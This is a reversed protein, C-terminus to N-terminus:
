RGNQDPLQMNIILEPLKGSTEAEAVIEATIAEGKAIILTGQVDRLDEGAVKGVIYRHRVNRIEMAVAPSAPWAGVQTPRHRDAVPMTEESPASQQAVPAAPEPEPEEPTSAVNIQSDDQPHANDQSIISELEDDWFSIQRCREPVPRDAEAPPTVTAPRNVIEQEPRDEPEDGVVAVFGRLLADIQQQLASMQSDLMLCQLEAQALRDHLAAREQEAQDQMAQRLARRAQEFQETALLLLKREGSRRQQESALMQKEQGLRAVEATAEAIRSQLASKEARYEDTLQQLFADVEQRNYGLVHSEKNLM